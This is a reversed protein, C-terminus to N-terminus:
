RLLLDEMQVRLVNGGWACRLRSVHHSFVVRSVHTQILIINFHIELFYSTLAYVSNLQSTRTFVAIVSKEFPVRVHIRNNESTFTVNTWYHKWRLNDRVAKDHWYWEVATVSESLYRRPTLVFPGKYPWSRLHHAVGESCYLVICHM